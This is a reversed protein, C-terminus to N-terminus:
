VTNKAIVDDLAKKEEDTLNSIHGSHDVGLQERWDDVYQLWLKARPADAEDLAKRYLAGLVNRTFGRMLKKVDIAFMDDSEMENRWRSLTPPNVGFEEAFSQMTKFQLLYVQTPDTIGLLEVIREPVGKFQGPLLLWIKFGERTYKRGEGKASKHAQESKGAEKEHKMREILSLEQEQKEEQKEKPKKKKM